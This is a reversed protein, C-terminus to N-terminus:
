RGHGIKRSRTTALLRKPTASIIPAFGTANFPESSGGIKRSFVGWEWDGAAPTDKTHFAAIMCATFALLAAFLAGESTIYSALTDSEPIGAIFMRGKGSRGGRAAQLSILASCYSPLADGTAGGQTPTGDPALVDYDPGQTPTMRRARVREFTYTSALVPLVNTVFCGIMVSILHLVVDTDNAQARFWLVNECEQDEIRGQLLVQWLEGANATVPM